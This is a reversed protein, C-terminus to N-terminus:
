RKYTFVFLSLFLLLFMPVFKFDIIINGPLADTKLLSFYDGGLFSSHLYVSSDRIFITVIAFLTRFISTLLVGPTARM